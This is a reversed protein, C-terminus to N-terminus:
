PGILSTQKGPVGHVMCGAPVDRMVASNASVKSRFGVRREPAVTSHTSLYVEDEVVSFGNLTAYPALLSFRGVQADHGVSAYISLHALEGIKAGNMVASFPYIVAGNGISATKAIYATPHILTLFRAGKQTLADVTQRRAEMNGIALLFRDNEAPLYDHPRDLVTSDIEHGDLEREDNALFGKFRYKDQALCDWLMEYMERGFGGAGIIVIDHM